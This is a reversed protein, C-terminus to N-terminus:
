RQPSDDVLMEVIALSDHARSDFGVRARKLANPDGLAIAFYVRGGQDTADYTFVAGGYERLRGVQAPEGSLVYHM